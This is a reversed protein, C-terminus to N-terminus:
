AAGKIENYAELARNRADPHSVIPKPYTKGLDVGAKKLIEAPAEWPKNLYKLPLDQLEPVWRRVYVGDPDFKEGQGIPNFIRFYPAADAGCGATWQWNAVNNALDADVLTDRFWAEGVRWDILLHKILFSAVVMRVRNHMFGTQWLERMGADVLPYGTKGRKWAGVADRDDRWPFADFRSNYNEQTLEPNYFLLNHNFDRWGLERLFSWVGKELRGAAGRRLRDLAIDWIERPSIEGFALHPSLRSTGEKDPRNRTDDYGQAIDDLFDALRARAGAEGPTWEARLGGAWDPTTPLLDWDALNDSAIGNPLSPLKSPKPEPRPLDGLGLEAKWFPSFVGYAGGAKTKVDWPEHLLSGNFSEVHLGEDKLRAKIKSDRDIAAPEYCRNWYISTAKTEECLAALCKEAPGRRLVLTGGLEEIDSELAALSHHLWWASASGIPLAGEIDPDLIFVCLPTAGQALAARLAPNDSLRLDKRFWCISVQAM